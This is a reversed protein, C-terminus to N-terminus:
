QRPIHLRATEHEDKRITLPQGNKEHDKLFEPDQWIGPEVDEWAFVKYDGPPISKLDFHGNQDSSVELPMRTVRRLPWVNQNRDLVVTLAMTTRM